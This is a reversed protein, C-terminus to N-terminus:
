EVRIGERHQLGNLFEAARMSRKGPMQLEEIVVSGSACGIYIHDHRVEVEGVALRKANQPACRSRLLKVQRAQQHGAKWQTWAGPVPSLGRIHDHVQQAPRNWNIRSIEPNLKPAEHLDDGVFEGQPLGIATGDLINKATRTLLDAGIAMLRDHLEGATEEPGIDVTERLLIDGTDIRQNIYFTTVGTRQEGNIIAWNIPAAGRYDPLLSAHLNVTGLEPMRWVAEPLMRFAVVIYLSADLKRLQEHFEPAKLNLPQLVPIGLSLAREKVASARLQQGRGAPRDPATVVGVVEMHAQVLADLSAVAFAPTGMFIIRRNM